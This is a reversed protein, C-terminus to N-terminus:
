GSGQDCWACRAISGPLVGVARRCRRRVAQRRLQLRRSARHRGAASGDVAGRQATHCRRAAASHGCHAGLLLLRTRHPAEKTRRQAMGAHPTAPTWTRASQLNNLCNDASARRQQCGVAIWRLATCVRQRVTGARLLCLGLSASGPAKCERSAPEQPRRRGSAAARSGAYKHMNCVISSTRLSHRRRMPRGGRLGAIKGRQLPFCTARGTRTRWPPTDVHAAAELVSSGGDAKSAVTLMCNLPPIWGRM